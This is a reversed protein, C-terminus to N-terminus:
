SKRRYRDAALMIFQIEDESLIQPLPSMVSRQVVKEAPDLMLVGNRHLWRFFSKTTTIRRALTKPSCPVGREKQMWEFYHNLDATTIAGLARDPAFYSAMLRLDSLFAKVTYPSRGQDNLYIEYATVAPMITTNTTIHATLTANAAM